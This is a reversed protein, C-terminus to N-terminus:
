VRPLPFQQDLLTEFLFFRHPKRGFLWHTEEPVNMWLANTAKAPLLQSSNLEYEYTSPCKSLEPLFDYWKTLFDAGLAPGM